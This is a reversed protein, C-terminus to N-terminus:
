TARCPDPLTPRRPAVFRYRLVEAVARYGIARYIGNSTANALETYLICREGAGLVAQSVSATVDSGYGRRRHRAPTFVPGVRRVGGAAPSTGALAVPVDHREWLWARGEAIRQDAQGSVDGVPEGTEAAFGGLLAAVAERDDPGALRSV